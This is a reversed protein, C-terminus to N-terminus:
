LRDDRYYALGAGYGLVAICSFCLSAVVLM